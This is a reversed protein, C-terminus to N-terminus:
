AEQIRYNYRVLAAAYCDLCDQLGMSEITSVFEDYQSEIDMDGTLMKLISESTYSAIDVM